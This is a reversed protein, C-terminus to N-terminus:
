DYSPFSSGFVQGWLRISEKHDDSSEAAQAARAKSSDALARTSIQYRETLSLTNLDGQIRKPDYVAQFVAGAIYDFLPAVELDVFRSSGSAASYYNLAICELLYSVMTPMTPRRNWFKLLRVANLVNGEHKANILTTREQDIRPDTKMWHGQGDPIVYYTRGDMEPTTFFGPVIDFSWTYSSLNLVAASGSRGLEARQYQPIDGLYAVYLNIVKRSNLMDTGDHCFERLAHGEPVYLRVAREIEYYTIGLARLCIILDIDDLERIKTRRAFSGYHMDMEPYLKPFTAYKNPLTRIQSLLWDRSARAQSSVASDLNVTESLFKAFADNVTTAM